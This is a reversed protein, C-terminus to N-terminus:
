LPLQCESGTFGTECSCNNPSICTGFGSCVQPDSSNKGFCIIYECEDGTFGEDCSCLDKNVCKGRGSCIEEFTHNKCMSKGFCEYTYAIKWITNSFQATFISFYGAINFFGQNDIFSYVFAMSAPYNDSSFQNPGTSKKENESSHPNGAMWVFYTQNYVWFDNVVGLVDVLLMIRVM